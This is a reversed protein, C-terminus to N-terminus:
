TKEIRNGEMSFMWYGNNKTYVAWIKDEKIEVYFASNLKLYSGDAFNITVTGEFDDPRLGNDLIDDLERGLLDVLEGAAYELVEYDFKSLMANRGERIIDYLTKPPLIRFM